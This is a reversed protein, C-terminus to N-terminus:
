HSIIYDPYDPDLWHQVEEMSVKMEQMMRIIFAYSDRFNDFLVFRMPYRNLTVSNVGDAQKDEKVVKFLDDINNFEAYM